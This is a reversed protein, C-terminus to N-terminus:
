SPRAIGANELEGTRPVEARISPAPLVAAGSANAPEITAGTEAIPAASPPSAALAAPEPIARCKPADGYTSLSAPSTPAIGPAMNPPFAVPTTPLAATGSARLASPRGVSADACAVSSCVDPIRGAVMFLCAREKTSAAPVRLPMAIALDTDFGDRVGAREDSIVFRVTYPRSIAILIRRRPQLSEKQAHIQKTM